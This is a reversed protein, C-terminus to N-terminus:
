QSVINLAFPEEVNRRLGVCCVDIKEVFGRSFKM